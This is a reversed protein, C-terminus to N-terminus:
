LRAAPELLPGDQAYTPSSFRSWCSLKISSRLRKTSRRTTKTRRLFDCMTSLAHMLLPRSLSLYISLYLSLYLSLSLSLSLRASKHSFLIQANMRVKIEAPEPEKRPQKRIPQDQRANPSLSQQPRTKTTSSSSSSSLSCCTVDIPVKRRSPSSSSCCAM